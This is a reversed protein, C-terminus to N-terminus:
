PVQDGDTGGGEREKWRLTRRLLKETEAQIGPAKSERSGAVNLTQFEGRLLWWYIQLDLPVEAPDLPKATIRVMTRAVRAALDIHLWPKAGVDCYRRTLESGSGLEIPGRTIILTADADQVNHLTRPPYAASSTETLHYRDPIVGDEALRGKPCWGGHPIGLAIAADLGGRDAGAQAGAIIRRLRLM